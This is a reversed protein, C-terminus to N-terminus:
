TVTKIPYLNFTWIGETVYRNEPLFDFYIEQNVSYPSPEGVYILVQTSELTISRGGTALIDINTRRGGPSILEIGLIDVYEKWFQVSFSTQYNGVSLEIRRMDTREADPGFSGSM